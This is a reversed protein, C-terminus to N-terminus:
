GKVQSLSTKIHDGRVFGSIKVTQGEKFESPVRAMHTHYPSISVTFEQGEKKVRWTERVEKGMKGAFVVQRDIEVIQFNEPMVYAFNTFFFM